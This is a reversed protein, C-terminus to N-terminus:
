VCTSSSANAEAQDLAHYFISTRAERDVALKPCSCGKKNVQGM